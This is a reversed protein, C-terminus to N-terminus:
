ITPLPQEEECICCLWLRHAAALSFMWLPNSYGEVREGPNFVPGYGDALNGSFRFTIYADECPDPTLSFIYAQEGAYIGAALLWLILLRNKRAAMVDEM